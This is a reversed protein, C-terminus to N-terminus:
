SRATQGSAERALYTRTVSEILGDIKDAAAKEEEITRRFDAVPASQGAQEAIVILSRYAAIQDFQYAYGAYLNKLTEDSAAAHVAAGITGAISSVTEKLSSASTGAAELAKDLRAIHTKITAVHGQLVAKYDPYNDLRSLQSEVQQLGQQELTRTNQLATKYISQIDTDAMPERGKQHEGFRGNVLARVGAPNSFM